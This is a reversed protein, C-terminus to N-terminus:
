NKIKIIIKYLKIELRIWGGNKKIKKKQTADINKLYNIQTAEM